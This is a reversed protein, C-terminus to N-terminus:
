RLLTALCEEPTGLRRQIEGALPENRNAALIEIVNAGYSFLAVCSDLTRPTGRDFADIAEQAAGEAEDLRDNLAYMRALRLYIAFDSFAFGYAPSRRNDATRVAERYLAAAAEIRASDGGTRAPGGTLDALAILSALTEINAPGLTSLRIRYAEALAADAERPPDEPWLETQADAYTNLSLALEPHNPGFAARAADVARRFYAVSRLRVARDGAMFLALGFSTLHDSVAPTGAPQRALLAEFAREAEAIRGAEILRAPGATLAALAEGNIRDRTEPERPAAQPEDAGPQAAAPAALAALALAALLGAMARHGNLM